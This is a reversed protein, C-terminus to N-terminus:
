TSAVCSMEDVAHNIVHGPRFLEFQIAVFTRVEAVLPADDFNLTQLSFDVLSEGVVREIDIVQLLRKVPVLFVHQATRELVVKRWVVDVRNARCRRDVIVVGIAMM